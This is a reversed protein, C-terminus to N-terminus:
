FQFRYSLEKSKNRRRKKQVCMIILNGKKIITLDYKEEEQKGGM